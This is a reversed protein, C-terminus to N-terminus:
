PRLPAWYPAPSRLGDPAHGTLLRSKRLGGCPLRPRSSWKWRARVANALRAHVPWSGRVARRRGLVLVTRGALLTAAVRLLDEVDRSEDCDCFAVYESTAALLGAHAAWGFGTRPEFVVTAGLACTIATSGNDVVIPRFIDPLGAVVRPLAAEENM